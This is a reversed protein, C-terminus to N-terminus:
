NHFKLTHGNHCSFCSSAETKSYDVEKPSHCAICRETSPQVVFETTGDGHCVFCGVNVMGHLSAHWQEAVEPTEEKHCDYCSQNFDVDPHEDQQATGAEALQASVVAQDTDVAQNMKRAHETQACAFFVLASLVALWAIAILTKREM